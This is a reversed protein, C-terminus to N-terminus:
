LHVSGFRISGAIKGSRKALEFLVECRQRTDSNGRLLRILNGGLATYRAAIFRRYGLGRLLDHHKRLVKVSYFGHQFGEKFLGTWSNENRHFVLAGEIYVVRYGSQFIRYTLDVDECRRLAEDFGGARLLVDKPSAWNATDVYPPRHYNIARDLDRVTEGFKEIANCPETARIRGGSIGVQPDQFPTVLYRLWQPDLLCDADTFAILNYRAARIGRNRAVSRGRRPEHVVNIANRFRALISATGDTSGNNVLVLELRDAPYSLALLSKILPELTCEANYVPVVVSVEPLDSTMSIVGSAVRLQDLFRRFFEDYLFNYGVNGDQPKEASSKSMSTQLNTLLIGASRSVFALVEWLTITRNGACNKPAGFAGAMAGHKAEEIM